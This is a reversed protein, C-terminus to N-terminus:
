LVIKLAIYPAVFFAFIFLEFAGMLCYNILDFKDEPIFFWKCILNHYWRKAFIFMIFWTLLVGINIISVWGLVSILIDLNM